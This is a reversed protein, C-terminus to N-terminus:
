YVAFQLTGTTPPRCGATTSRRARRAAGGPSFAAQRDDRSSWHCGVPHSPLPRGCLKGKVCLPKMADCRWRRGDAASREGRPPSRGDAARPSRRATSSRRGVGLPGALRRHGATAAPRRPGPPKHDSGTPTPRPRHPTAPAPLAHGPHRGPDTSARHAPHSREGPQTPSRTTPSSHSRRSSPAPSLAAQPWASRSHFPVALIRLEIASRVPNSSPRPRPPQNSPHRLAYGGLPHARPTPACLRGAPPSPNDTRPAARRTPEPQPEPPTRCPLDPRQGARVVAM